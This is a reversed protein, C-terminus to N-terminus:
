NTAEVPDSIAAGFSGGRSRYPNNGADEVPMPQAFDPPAPIGNPDGVNAPEEYVTQQGEWANTPAAPIEGENGPQTAAVPTKPKSYTRYGWYGTAATTALLGGVLAMRLIPLKRVEM